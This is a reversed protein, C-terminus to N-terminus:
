WFDQVDDEAAYFKDLSIVETCISKKSTKKAEIIFEQALFKQTQDTFFIASKFSRGNERHQKNHQSTDHLLFLVELLQTYTVRDPDFTIEM